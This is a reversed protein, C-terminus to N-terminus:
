FYSTSYNWISVKQDEVTIIEYTENSEKEKSGEIVIIGDEEEEEELEEQTGQM